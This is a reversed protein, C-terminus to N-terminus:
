DASCTSDEIRNSSDVLLQDKVNKFTLEIAYVGPRSPNVVSAGSADVISVESVDLCITAVVVAFPPQAHNGNFSLVRTDGTIVYGESHMKSLNERDAREFSGTELAYVAEFTEPNSPDVANLAENYARYTEEAAAFAEEESAFAATPTPTPKAAPSCGVILAAALALVGVVALSKSATQVLPVRM